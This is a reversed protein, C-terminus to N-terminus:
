EFWRLKTSSERLSHPGHRTRTVLARWVREDVEDRFVLLTKGTLTPHNKVCLATIFTMVFGEFEYAPKADPNFPDKGELAVLWEQLDNVPTIPKRLHWVIFAVVLALASATLLAGSAAAAIAAVLSIALATWWLHKRLSVEGNLSSQTERADAV